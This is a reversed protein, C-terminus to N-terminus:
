RVRRAPRKVKGVFYAEYHSLPLRQMGHESRVSQCLVIANSLIPSRMSRLCRLCRSDSPFPLSRELIKCLLLFSESERSREAHISLLVLTDALRPLNLSAEGYFAHRTMLMSLSLNSTKIRRNISAKVKYLWEFVSLHVCLDPRPLSTKTFSYHLRCVECPLLQRLHDQLFSWM